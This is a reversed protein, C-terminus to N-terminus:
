NFKVPFPCVGKAERKGALIDIAYEECKASPFGAILRPIHATKEFTYPNGIHVVAATRMSLADFFGSFRETFSDTVGYAVSKCYTLFVVDDYHSSEYSLDHIDSPNPFEDIFRVVSNKFNEKVMRELEKPNWSIIHPVELSEGNKSLFTNEKMIIFMHKKETDIAPSLGEDTIAYISDASFREVTEIDEKTLENYPAPASAVEQAILVRRVAENLREEDFVGKKYSEEVFKISQSYSIRYNPLVLDVGAAIAIGACNEEGFRNIIGMMALSDSFIVGDFGHKRIISLIKKSLTAPYEPDIKEFTTHTTMIGYLCSNELLSLYPKLDKEELDKESFNSFADYLHTDVDHHDSGGPYHKASFYMGGDRYGKAIQTVISSVRENDNSCIRLVRTKANDLLDVVPGWVVNFGAAKAEIATILGFKYAMKEDNLSSLSMASPFKYDSGPFGTEMDACMLIKNPALKHLELVRDKDEKDTSGQFGGICGRKLKDLIFEREKEDVKWPMKRCLVVHGIKQETTMESLKKEIKAMDVDFSMM